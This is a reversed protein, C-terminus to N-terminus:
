DGHWKGERTLKRDVAAKGADRAAAESLYGRGSTRSDVHFGYSDGTKTLRFTMGRYEVTITWGNTM